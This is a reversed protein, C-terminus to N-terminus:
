INTWPCIDEPLLVKILEKIPYGINVEFFESVVYVITLM